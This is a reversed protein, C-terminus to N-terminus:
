APKRGGGPPPPAFVTRREIELVDAPRPFPAPAPEGPARPRGIAQFFDELGNPLLLWTFTMDEAGDNVFMHVRNRGLFITTGAVMPHTEGDLVAHGSGAICHILEENRDHSHERVYCGPAVTQTGFGFPTEMRANRPAVRLEVYGNAPVPQWYSESQGPQVVVLDGRDTDM